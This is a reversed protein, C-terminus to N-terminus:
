LEGSMELGWAVFMQSSGFMDKTVEFTSRSKADKIRGVQRVSVAQYRKRVSVPSSARVSTTRNTGKNMEEVATSKRPFSFELATHGGRGRFCLEHRSAFSRIVNLPKSTSEVAKTERL